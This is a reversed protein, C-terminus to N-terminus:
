IHKCTQLYAFMLNTSYSSIFSVTVTECINLYTLQASLTKTRRLKEDNFCETCYVNMTDTVKGDARDCLSGFYAWVFSKADKKQQVFYTKFKNAM